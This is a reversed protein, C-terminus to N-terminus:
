RARGVTGAAGGVHEGTVTSARGETQLALQLARATQDWGGGPAAPATIRLEPLPVAQGAAPAAPALMAAGLLVCAVRMDARM